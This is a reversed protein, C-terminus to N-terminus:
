KLLDLFQYDAKVFDLMKLKDIDCWMLKNHVILKPEGKLITCYYIHLTVSFTDYEHQVTTIFDDVQIIVDLEEKLERILAKEKTEHKEIKGGPFEWKLGCEGIDKRQCCLIKQDKKIIGVVVEYHTKNM